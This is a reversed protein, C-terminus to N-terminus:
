IPLCKTIRMSFISSGRYQTRINLLRSLPKMLLSISKIIFECSIQFKNKVQPLGVKNLKRVPISFLTIGCGCYHDEWHIRKEMLSSPRHITEKVLENLLTRM